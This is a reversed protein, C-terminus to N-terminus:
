NLSVKSVAIANVINNDIINKANRTFSSNNFKYTHLKSAISIEM